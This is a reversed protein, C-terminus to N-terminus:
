AHIPSLVAEEQINAQQSSTTVVTPTEVTLACSDFSFSNKNCKNLWPGSKSGEVCTNTSACWGCMPDSSCASCAQYVSCPDQSCYAYDWDGAAATGNFPGAAGGEVCKKEKTKWGCHLHMTCPGCHTISDCTIKSPAMFPKECDGTKTPDCAPPVPECKEGACNANARLKALLPGAVVAEADNIKPKGTPPLEENYAKELASESAAAVAVLAFVVVLKMM